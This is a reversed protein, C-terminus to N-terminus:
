RTKRKEGGQHKAQPTSTLTYQFLREMLNVHQKDENRVMEEIDVGPNLYELAKYIVMEYLSVFTRKDEDSIPSLIEQIFEWGGLTAPKLANEAKSTIVLRVVRRDSKSRMRKVLGIKVMRDVIMSVSNPSRGLWQAVDTPRVPDNLYKITMLVAYQETTLNYKGYIQDECMKLLARTRHIQFWLKLVRNESESNATM